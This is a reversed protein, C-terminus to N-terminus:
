DIPPAEKARPCPWQVVPESNRPIWVRMSTAGRNGWSYYPIARVEVAREEPETGAATPAEGSSNLSLEGYPWGSRSPAARGELRLAVVTDTAIGFGREEGPPVSADVSITRLNVAKPVDIGEICYVLPGREFAVCNRVADIESAAGVARVRLPLELVIEDGTSWEQRLRLYGKECPEVAVPRGNLTCRAENTWTPVRLAIEQTDRPAAVVRITISGDFPYGTTVALELAGLSGQMARIRGSVYQHLQVGEDTRTAVYHEFSAILRMINPPCCACNYWAQRTSPERSQLPNVYFFSTGDLGVSALFGNYLTREMLEAYIAEGTVLLLRWNWMISAIAACTECYARDPPLEYADGFAEDKHRSGIGGTLYTKTSVMDRWQALISTLLAPRGTETYLDTAGSLLYLARVAHGRITLADDFPVDDQFYSPGYAHWSLSARGRRGILDAALDVFRGDGSTRYLEVLATEIEPHGPVFDAHESSLVDVLLSAFRNAIGGLTGPSESTRTDAVSAQILHGACYLEHGMAPDGFRHGDEVVQVYSNVYGDREQAAAIVEVSSAFFKEQDAERGHAREWAIAELVKYLDSDRFLPLRYEARSSGAAIRLNEITGSEELMQLGYPITVERNLRQRAGWFGGALEIVGDLIPHLALFRREIPEVPGASV